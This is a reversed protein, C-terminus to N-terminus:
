QNTELNSSPDGPAIRGFPQNCECDGVDCGAMRHANVDRHCVPCRHKKPSPMAKWEAETYGGIRIETATRRGHKGGIRNRDEEALTEVTKVLQRRGAVWGAEYADETAATLLVVPGRALVDEWTPHRKTVGAPMQQRDWVLWHEGGLPHWNGINTGSAVWIEQRRYDGYNVAVVAGSSQPEDDPGLLRLGGLANFDSM